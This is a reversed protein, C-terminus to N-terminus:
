KLQKKSKLFPQLIIWSAKNAIAVNILKIQESLSHGQITVAIPIKGNCQKAIMEIILKKENFSLKHVETALGLCAIGNSGIKKIFQIQEKMLKIDLSNNKNFFSYIIPFIGKLNKQQYSIKNISQSSIM